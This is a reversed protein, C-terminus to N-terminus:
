GLYYKYSIIICDHHSLNRRMVQKSKKMRILMCKHKNLNPIRLEHNIDVM